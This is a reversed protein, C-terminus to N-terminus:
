RTVSYHISKFIEFASEIDSTSSKLKDVIEFTKDLYQNLQVIKMINNIFIIAISYILKNTNNDTKNDDFHKVFSFM